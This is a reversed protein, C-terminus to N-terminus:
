KTPQQRLKALLRRGAPSLKEIDAPPLNSGFTAEIRSTLDVIVPGWGLDNLGHLAIWMGKEDDRVIFKILERLLGVSTILWPSRKAHQAKASLRRLGKDPDDPSFPQPLPIKASAKRLVGEVDELTIPGGGIALLAYRAAEFKGFGTGVFALCCAIEFKQKDREIPVPPRGRKAGPKKKTVM